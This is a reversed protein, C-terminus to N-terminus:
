LGVDSLVELDAHLYGGFVMFLELGCCEDIDKLGELAIFTEEVEKPGDDVEALILFDMEFVDLYFIKCSLDAQVPTQNM